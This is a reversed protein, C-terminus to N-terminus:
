RKRTGRAKPAPASFTVKELLPEVKEVLVNYDDLDMVDAILDGGQPSNAPVPKGELAYEGEGGGWNEIIRELLANRLINTIGSPMEQHGDTDVTITFSGQVAMKDGATLKDRLQVWAGSPLDVKM